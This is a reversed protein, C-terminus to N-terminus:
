RPVTNTIPIIKCRVNSCAPLRMPTTASRVVVGPEFTVPPKFQLTTGVADGTALGVLCGRFRDISMM